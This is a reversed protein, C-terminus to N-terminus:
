KLTEKSFDKTIKILKGKHTTQNKGKLAMLVREKNETSITKVIIHRQSTRNQEHRKTTMSVEEVQVSM